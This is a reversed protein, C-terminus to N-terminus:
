AAKGEPHYFHDNGYLEDAEERTMSHEPEPQPDRLYVARIRQEPVSVITGGKPSNGLIALAPDVDEGSLADEGLRELTTKINAHNGRHIGFVTAASVEPGTANFGVRELFRRGLRLQAPPTEYAISGGGQDHFRNHMGTLLRHLTDAGLTAHQGGVFFLDEADPHQEMAALVADRMSADDTQIVDAPLDQEVQAGPALIVIPSAEAHAVHSM